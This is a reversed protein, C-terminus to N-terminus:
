TAKWPNIVSVGAAEFPATDRTAVKFGQAAAIAAITGDPIPCGRGKHKATIALEAYRRAADTDFTLVRSEFLELLGDLADVLGSNSLEYACIATDRRAPM